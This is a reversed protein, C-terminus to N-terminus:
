EIRPHNVQWKGLREVLPKKALFGAKINCIEFPYIRIYELGNRMELTNDM